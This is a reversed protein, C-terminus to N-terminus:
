ASNRRTLAVLLLLGLPQVVLVALAATTGAADALAGIAFPLILGLPTFLHGAALVSGSQNPRCAYAQAAALPYLPGVFMGVPIALLTAALPTPALLWPVYAVICGVACIALLNRESRTKLLRELAVLGLADGATFAAVALSQWFPGAHLDIRLHLSAFIVLIEDLLDCLATGFLWAVLLPDTIADKLTAWLGKAPTADAEEEDDKPASVEFSAASLAALWVLLLVGIAVFGWRWSAGALALAALLAPALMDGAVSWLTWRTLARAREDAFRDVLTAQALATCTGSAIYSFGLAIALAIPGPALAAGFAGLSMGALGARIFWRRPYRDALLFVIPEVVLAIAGPAVFVTLALVAHATAFTLEIDPGGVVPM